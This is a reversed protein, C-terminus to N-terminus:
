NWQLDDHSMGCYFQFSNVPMSAIRDVFERDILTVGTADGGYAFLRKLRPHANVEVQLVDWFWIVIPKIYKQQLADAVQRLNVDNPWTTALIFEDFHHHKLAAAYDDTLEKKLTRFLAASTPDPKSMFKCQIVIAERTGRRNTATIDIGGQRQGRRGLRQASFDGFVDKAIECCFRDFEDDNSIPLLKLAPVSLAYLPWDPRAKAHVCMRERFIM